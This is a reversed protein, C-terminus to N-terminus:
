IHEISRSRSSIPEDGLSNEGEEFRQTWKEIARLGIVGAGSVSDIEQSIAPNPFNKLSLFHIFARIESSLLFVFRV